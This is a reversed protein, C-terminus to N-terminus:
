DVIIYDIDEVRCLYVIDEHYAEVPRDDQYKKMPSKVAFWLEDSTTDRGAYHGYISYEKDKFFVDVNSGDQKDLVGDMLDLKPSKGFLVSCLQEFWSRRMIAALIAAIIIAALAVVVTQVSQWGLVSQQPYLMVVIDWASLLLYSVVCSLVIQVEKEYKKSAGFMFVRVGLFGPVFYKLVVAVNDIVEVITIDIM